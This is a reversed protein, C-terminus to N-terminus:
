RCGDCVGANQSNKSNNRESFVLAGACFWCRFPAKREGYLVRTPDERRDGRADGSPVGKRYGEGNNDNPHNDRHPQPPNHRQSPPYAGLECKETGRFFFFVRTIMFFSGELFLIM